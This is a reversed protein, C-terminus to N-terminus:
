PPQPLRPDRRDKSPRTVPGTAARFRVKVCSLAGVPASPAGLVLAPLFSRPASPRAVVWHLGSFIVNDFVDFGAFMRSHSTAICPIHNPRIRPPNITALPASAPASSTPQQIASQRMETGEPPTPRLMVLFSMVCASHSPLKRSQSRAHRDSAHAAWGSTRSSWMLGPTGASAGSSSARVGLSSSYGGGRPGDTIVTAPVVRYGGSRADYCTVDRSPQRQGLLEEREDTGLADFHKLVTRSVQVGVHGAADATELLLEATTTEDISEEGCNDCVRAPM